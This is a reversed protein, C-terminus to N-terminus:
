WGLPRDPRLSPLERRDDGVTQVGILSILRGGATPVVLQRGEIAPQAAIGAIRTGDAPAWSWRLEGGYRDVAHITGSVDGVFVFAGDIAPPGLQADPREWTWTHEGNEPDVAVLRGAADSTVLGLLDRAMPGVAGLEPDRWRVEQTAADFALAGGGYSAAVVLGDVVVPEGQLDPFKGSGVQVTWVPVGGDQTLAELAGDSFGALIRGSAPELVPSPAGLIALETSARAIPRRRTWRSAGTSLDLAVVSDASTSVFILDGVVLPPRTVAGGVEVAWRTTWDSGLRKVGGLADAVLYGDELVVPACQVPGLTPVIRSLRGTNREWVHLGAKRSTGGLVVDGVILPTGLELRSIAWRGEDPLAATWDDALPLAIRGRYPSEAASASTEGARATVGAGVPPGGVPNTLM